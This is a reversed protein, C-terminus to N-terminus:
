PRVEYVVIEDLEFRVTLLQKLLPSEVGNRRDAVFWRVHHDRRLVEIGEATPAYFAANNAALLPEDWFPTGGVFTHAKVADTVSRPAYL